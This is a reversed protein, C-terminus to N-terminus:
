DMEKDQALEEDTAHRSEGDANQESAKSRPEPRNGGTLETNQNAKNQATDQSGSGGQGAPGRSSIGKENNDDHGPM